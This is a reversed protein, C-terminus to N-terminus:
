TGAKKELRMLMLRAGALLAVHGGFAAVATARPAPETSDHAGDFRHLRGDRTLVLLLLSVLLRPM